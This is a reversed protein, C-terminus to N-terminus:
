LLEIAASFSGSVTNMGIDGLTGSAIQRDLRIAGGTLSLVHLIGKYKESGISVVVQSM